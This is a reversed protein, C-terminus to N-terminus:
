SRELLAGALSWGLALETEQQSCAVFCIVQFRVVNDELYHWTKSL